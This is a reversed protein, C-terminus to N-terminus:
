PVALDSTLACMYRHLTMTIRGKVAAGHVDFPGPANKSM